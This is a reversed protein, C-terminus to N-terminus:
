TEIEKIDDSRYVRIYNDITDKCATIVYDNDMNADICYGAKALGINYSREVCYKYAKNVKTHFELGKADIVNHERSNKFVRNLGVEPDVDLIIQLDPLVAVYSQIRMIKNPEVTGAGLSESLKGQYVLSSATYRDCIVIYGEALAPKIIQDTNLKRAAAFLMLQTMSDLENNVVINRIEEAVKIGGPERTYKVLYGENKFRQELIKAVTTKGAGEGGELVIFLGNEIKKM